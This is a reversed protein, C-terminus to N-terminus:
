HSYQGGVAVTVAPAALERMVEEAITNAKNVVALLRDSAVATVGSSSASIEYNGILEHIPTAAELDNSFSQYFQVLKRAKQEAKQLREPHFCWGQDYRTVANNVLNVLGDVQNQLEISEGIYQSWDVFLTLGNRPDIAFIRITYSKVSNKFISGVPGCSSLNGITDGILEAAKYGGIASAVAVGGFYSTLATGALGLVRLFFDKIGRSNNTEQSQNNQAQKEASTLKLYKIAEENNAELAMKKRYLGDLETQCAQKKDVEGRSEYDKLDGVLEAIKEDLQNYTAITQQSLRIREEINGSNVLAFNLTGGLLAGLCAEVLPPADSLTADYLRAVQLAAPIPMGSVLADLFTSVMHIIELGNVAAETNRIAKEFGIMKVTTMGDKLVPPGEESETLDAALSVTPVYEISRNNKMPDPSIIPEFRESPTALKKLASSAELALLVCTHGDAQLSRIKDVVNQPNTIVQDKPFFISNDAQLLGAIAYLHNREMAMEIEKKIKNHDIQQNVQQQNASNKNVRRKLRETSQLNVLLHNILKEHIEFGQSPDIYNLLVEDIKRSFWLNFYDTQRMSSVNIGPIPELQTRDITVITNWDKILKMRAGSVFACVEDSYFALLEENTDIFEIVKRIGKKRNEDKDNAALFGGVLRRNLERAKSPIYPKETNSLL